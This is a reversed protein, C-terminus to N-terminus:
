NPQEPVSMEDPRQFHPRELAVGGEAFAGTSPDVRLIRPPAAVGNSVTVLLSGDEMAAVSTAGLVVSVYDQNGTAPDVEIVGAGPVAVFVRGLADVALGQASFLYGDSTVLTQEGTEPDVAVIRTSATGQYPTSGEPPEFGVFGDVVSVYLMGDPGLAIATPGGWLTPELLGGSSVVHQIWGPREIELIETSRAPDWQRVVFLTDSQQGPPLTAPYLADIPKSSGSIAPGVVSETLSTSLVRQSAISPLRPRMNLWVDIVEVSGSGDAIEISASYAGVGVHSVDFDVELVDVESQGLAGSGDVSFRSTSATVSYELEGGGENAVVLYATPAEEGYSVDFLLQRSEIHLSAPGMVSISAVQVSSVNPSGDDTARLLLVFNGQLGEPPAIELAGTGDGHDTLQVFDPGSLIDLAVGDGDSDNATVVGQEVDGALASFYPASTWTPPRNAQLVTVDVEIEQDLQPQGDDRVRVTWRYSGADGPGPEVRLFASGTGSDQLTAFAPLGVGEITLMDGDPDLARLLVFGAGGEAVEFAPVARFTPPRNSSTVTLTLFEIDLLPPDGADRATVSIAYSGADAIGPDFELLGLGNGQDSFSAFAPLGAASLLMPDGNPDTARVLIAASSGVEVSPDDLDALEPPVNPGELAVFTIPESPDSLPGVRGSSDFAAVSVTITTGYSQFGTLHARPETVVASHLQPTQGNVSVYVRYGAVPGISATWEVTASLRGEVVAAEASMACVFGLVLALGVLLGSRLQEIFTSNRIVGIGRM